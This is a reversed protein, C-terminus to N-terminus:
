TRDPKQISKGSNVTNPAPGLVYFYVGVSILNYGHRIWSVLKTYKGVHFCMFILQQWTPSYVTQRMSGIPYIGLIITKLNYRRSWFIADNQTDMNTKPPISLDIHKHHFGHVRFADVFVGFIIMQIWHILFRLFFCPEWPHKGQFCTKEQFVATSVVNIEM